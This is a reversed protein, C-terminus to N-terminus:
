DTRWCHTRWLNKEVSNPRLGNLKKPLVAVSTLNLLLLSNLFALLKSTVETFRWGGTARVNVWARQRQAHSDKSMNPYTNGYIPPTHSLRHHCLAHLLICTWGLIITIRIRITTTKSTWYQTSLYFVHHYVQIWAHKWRCRTFIACNICEQVEKGENSCFMKGGNLINTKGSM